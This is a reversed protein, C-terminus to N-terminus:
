QRLTDSNTLRSSYLASDASSVACEAKRIYMTSMRLPRSVCGAGCETRACRSVIQYTLRSVHVGVVKKM